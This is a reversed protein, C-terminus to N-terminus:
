EDSADQEEQKYAVLGPLSVTGFVSAERGLVCMETCMRASPGFLPLGHLPASHGSSGLLLAPLAM